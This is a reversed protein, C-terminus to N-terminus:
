VADPFYAWCPGITQGWQGNLWARSHGSAAYGNEAAALIEAPTYDNPNGVIGYGWSWHMQLGNYHGNPNTAYWAGEGGHICMWGAYHAPRQAAKRAAMIARNIRQLTLRAAPLNESRRCIAVPTGIELNGCVRLGPLVGEPIRLTLDLRPRHNLWWRVANRDHRISEVVVVRKQRLTM